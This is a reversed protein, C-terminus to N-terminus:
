GLLTNVQKDKELHASRGALTPVTQRARNPPPMKKKKLDEVSIQFSSIIEKTTYILDIM